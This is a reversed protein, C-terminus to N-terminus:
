RKNGRLMGMMGMTDLDWGLKDIRYVNRQFGVLWDLPPITSSMAMWEGWLEGKVSRLVM